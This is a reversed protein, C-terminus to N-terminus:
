NDLFDGLEKLETDTMESLAGPVPVEIVNANREASMCAFCVIKVDPREKLFAQGSPFIGVQIGCKSCVKSNDQDPRTRWMDKLRMVILEDSSM